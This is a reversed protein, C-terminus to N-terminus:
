IKNAALSPLTSTSRVSRTLPPKKTVVRALSNQIRQLQVIEKDAIGFLLSNCYDLRSSILAHALLNASDSTLYRRIRRLDRIRYRCSRCVASVHSRFSFNSYFIVGLNRAAKASTTKVGLLNVPFIALYKSRRREHGILLFETTDPDLKM